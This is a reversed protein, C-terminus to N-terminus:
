PLSQLEPHNPTFSSLALPLTVQQYISLYTYSTNCASSFLRRRKHSYNKKYNSVICSTNGLYVNKVNVTFM